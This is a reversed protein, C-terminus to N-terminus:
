TFIDEDEEADGDVESKVDVPAASDARAATKRAKKKM